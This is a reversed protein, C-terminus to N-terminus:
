KQISLISYLQQFTQIEYTPCPAEPPRKTGNPNFWCSDIGANVAGQIDSSLSDGFVLPCSREEESLKSFVYDFYGISPKQAGADESVFIGSLYKALGSKEIRQYQTKSVGNTIIYLPYCRSLDECLKLAGPVLFACEGLKERYFREAAIGDESVELEEFLRTFRRSSIDGKSIEGREFKKWLGHNIASYRSVVADDATRGFHEFVQKVCAAEAAKFDLLTDDADLLLATYRKM